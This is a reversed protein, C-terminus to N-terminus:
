LEARKKRAYGRGGPHPSTAQVATKLKSWCNDIPSLDPSYALFSLLHAGAAEIVERVGKVKHASLNDMVVVEDSVLNPVLVLSVYTRFVAANMAGEITM